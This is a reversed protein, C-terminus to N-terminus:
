AEEGKGPTYKKKYIIYVILGFLLLAPTWYLIKLLTSTIFSEPSINFLNTLVFVNIVETILRIVVLILLSSIAKVISIKNIFVLLLTLIIILLFLHVGMYIPLLRIIYILLGCLFGTILIRKKDFPINSLVYVGLVFIFQEPIAGLFLELISIEM